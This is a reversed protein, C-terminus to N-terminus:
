GVRTEMKKWSRAIGIGDVLVNEGNKKGLRAQGIMGSMKVDDEKAQVQHQENIVNDEENEPGANPLVVRSMFFAASKSLM